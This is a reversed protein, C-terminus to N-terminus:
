FLSLQTAAPPEQPKEQPSDADPKEASLELAADTEAETTETTEAAVAALEETLKALALDEAAREPQNPQDSMAGGPEPPAAAADIAAAFPDLVIMEPESASEAQAGPVEERIATLESEAFGVQLLVSRLSEENRVDKNQIVDLYHAHLCARWEDDFINRNSM